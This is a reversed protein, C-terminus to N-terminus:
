LQVINIVNKVAFSAAFTLVARSPETAHSEVATSSTNLTMRIAYSGPVPGLCPEHIVGDLNTGTGGRGGLALHDAFSLASDESWRM